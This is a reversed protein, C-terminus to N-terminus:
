DFSLPAAIKKSQTRRPTSKTLAFLVNIIIGDTSLQLLQDDDRHVAVETSTTWRCLLPLRYEFSYADDDNSVHRLINAKIELPHPNCNDNM